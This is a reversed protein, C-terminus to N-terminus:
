PQVALTDLAVGQRRFEDLITKANANGEAALRTTGKALADLQRRLQISQQVTQEQAARATILTGRARVLEFTQLGILLFIALALVGNQMRLSRLADVVTTDEAPPM